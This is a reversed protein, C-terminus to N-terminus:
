GKHESTTLQRRSQVQSTLHWGNCLRCHYKRRETRRTTLRGFEASARAIAARHLARTASIADPFRVKGTTQCRSTPPKGHRGARSM